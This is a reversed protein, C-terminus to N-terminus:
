YLAGVCIVADGREFSCISDWWSQVFAQHHIPKKGYLPGGYYGHHIPYKSGIKIAAEEGYKSLQSNQRFSLFPYVKACVGRLAGWMIPSQTRLALYECGLDNMVRSIAYKAIGKGQFEPLLIIGSLYLLHDSLSNFIAFGILENWISSKAHDRYRFEHSLHLSYVVEGGILHKEVDARLEPSDNVCFGQSALHTALDLSPKVQRIELTCGVQVAGNKTIKANM